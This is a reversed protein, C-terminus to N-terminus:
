ALKLFMRLLTNLVLLEFLSCFVVLFIVAKLM